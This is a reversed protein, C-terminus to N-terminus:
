MLQHFLPEHGRLASLKDLFDPADTILQGYVRLGTEIWSKIWPCYHLNPSLLNGERIKAEHYCGGSCISAAWCGKCVIKKDLCAEQRFKVIKEQDFGNFIDGMGASDDNTLRQCLFLHGKPDVSFMGIGAGCPYQKVEGEHLTVLLDVLNTFGLFQDKLALDIFIDSLGQFQELLRSMQHTDLQFDIDMTTVPAFGVESFGLDLLHYLIKFISKVDKALTVRAVVPKSNEGGLFNKIKPLIINYSPSGDPFRRFRDHVAEYGDLSVTTGIRNERIFRIAKKTLLTGNTTMAYEINKGEILATKDAYNITKSILRFNLLPEGGFFVLVLDELRGSNEFLFDVAKRAVNLEMSLYSKKNLEKPSHYCYSCMLNCSETVHLVLTKLPIDLTQLVSNSQKMKQATMMRNGTFNKWFDNKDKQSGQLISYLDQKTFSGKTIDHNLVAQTESGNEIEFITGSQTLFVFENGNAQFRKHDAIKVMEM